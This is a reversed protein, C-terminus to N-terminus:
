PESEDRGRADKPACVRSNEFSIGTPALAESGAAARISSVLESAPLSDLPSAVGRRCAEAAEKSVEVQTPHSALAVLIM